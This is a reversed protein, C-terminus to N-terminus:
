LVRTPTLTEQLSIIDRADWSDEDPPKQWYANWFDITAFCNIGTFDALEAKLIQVPWTDGIKAATAPRFDIIVRYSDEDKPVLYPASQWTANRDPEIYKYEALKQFYTYLFTRQEFTYRRAVVRKPQNKGNLIVKMPTMREPGDVALKIKTVSINKMLLQLLGIEKNTPFGETIAGKVRAKLLKAIDLESDAEFKAAKLNDNIEDNETSVRTQFM